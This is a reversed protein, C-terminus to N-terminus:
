NVLNNCLDFQSFHPYSGNVWFVWYFDLWSFSLFFAKSVLLTVQPSRASAPLDVFDLITKHTMSGFHPVQSFLLM